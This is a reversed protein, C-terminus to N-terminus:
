WPLIKLSLGVSVSVSLAFYNEHAGNGLGFSNFFSYRHLFTADHLSEAVLM